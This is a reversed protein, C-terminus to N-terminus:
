RKPNVARACLAVCPLFLTGDDQLHARVQDRALKWAAPADAYGYKEAIAALIERPLADLNFRVFADTSAYRVPAVVEQISVDSFGAAELTAALQTQDSMSFPTPTGQPPQPLELTQMLPALGQSILHRDPPGWVAVALTGGPVLAGRIASLTAVQDLVFMLGLRSVAANFGSPLTTNEVDGVIFTANSRDGARRRAIKLMAPSLDIGVVEGGTGVHAAITLAPEGYGSGLDLIRQGPGVGADDLLRATIPAFGTEIEECWTEWAPASADWLARQQSKFTEQEIM